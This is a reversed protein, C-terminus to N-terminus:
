NGRRSRKNLVWELFADFIAAVWEASVKRQQPQRMLSYFLDYAEDKDEGLSHREGAITVYWAGRAKWFWPKPRRAM